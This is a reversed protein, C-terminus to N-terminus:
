WLFHRIKQIIKDRTIEDFREELCEGVHIWIKRDYISMIFVIGDEIEGKKRRKGVQFRNMLGKAMNEVLCKRDSKKNHSSKCSSDEIKKMLAFFM